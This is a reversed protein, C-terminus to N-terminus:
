NKPFNLRRVIDQFRPDDRLYDWAPAVKIFGIGFTKRQYASELFRIAAEKDGLLANLNMIFNVAERRDEESWGSVTKRIYDERGALAHLRM